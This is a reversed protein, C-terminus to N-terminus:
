DEHNLALYPNYLAPWRGELYRFHRTWCSVLQDADKDRDGVLDGVRALNELLRSAVGSRRFIGRVYVYHLLGPAGLVWGYKPEGEPAVAILCISGKRALLRAMTARHGAKFDRRRMKRWPVEKYLSDAWSPRIFDLDEPTMPRILIPWEAKAAPESM